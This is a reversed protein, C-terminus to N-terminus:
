KKIYKSPNSEITRKLSANQEGPVSVQEKLFSKRMGINADTIIQCGTNNYLNKKAMKSKNKRTAQKHM